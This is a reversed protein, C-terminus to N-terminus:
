FEIAFRQNLSYAHSLVAICVNLFSGMKLPPTDTFLFFNNEKTANEWGGGSDASADLVHLGERKGRKANGPL